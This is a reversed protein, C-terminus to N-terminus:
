KKSERLFDEINYVTKSGMGDLEVWSFGKRMAATSGKRCFLNM